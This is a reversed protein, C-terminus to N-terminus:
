GERKLVYKMRNEKTIIELELHTIASPLTWITQDKVEPLPFLVGNLRYALIGKPLSQNAHIELKRIITKRFLRRKKLTQVNWKIVSKRGEIFIQNEGDCQLIPSLKEEENGYIYPVLLLQTSVNIRTLKFPLDDTSEVCGIPEQKSIIALIRERSSAAEGEPLAYIEVREVGKAWTWNLCRDPTVRLLKIDHPGM